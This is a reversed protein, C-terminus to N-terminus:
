LCIKDKFKNYTAEGIGSVNLIDEVKAFTRADIIKQATSPGVGDLTQLQEKSASNISVCQTSPNESEEPSEPETIQVIEKPLKFELLECVSDEEFPIYIKSNDSLLASLNVKMSIYKQAFGNIFGGAEKVADVIASDKEICYVGPKKVAGSVDIRVPCPDTEEKIEQEVPKEEEESEEQVAIEVNKEEKVRELIYRIDEKEGISFIAGVAVGALFLSILIFINKAKISSEM